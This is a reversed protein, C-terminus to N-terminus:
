HSSNLRTSKRDVAREPTPIYSDLAEALKLIAGEGLEGDLARRRVRHEEPLDNGVLLERRADVVGADDLAEARQGHDPERDEGAPRAGIEDAVRAHDGHHQEDAHEDTLWARHTVELGIMTLHLRRRAELRAVKGREIDTMVGFDLAVATVGDLATVATAVRAQLAAIIAPSSKFDMDAVWLPLIDRGAYKQWKQSDTGRREIVTDFDFTMPYPAISAM